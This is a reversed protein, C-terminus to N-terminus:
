FTPLVLALSPGMRQSIEYGIDRGEDSCGFDFHLLPVSRQYFITDTVTAAGSAQSEIFLPKDYGREAKWRDIASQSVRQGGISLRAMDAPTNVAFFLVFTLLNVGVLILVGYLLRRLIYRIM